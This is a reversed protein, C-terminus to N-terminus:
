KKLPQSLIFSLAKINQLVEARIDDTNRKLCRYSTSVNM